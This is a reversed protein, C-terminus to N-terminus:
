FWRVLKLLEKVNDEKMDWCEIHIHAEPILLKHEHVEIVECGIDSIQKEVEEAVSADTVIDGEAICKEDCKLTISSGHFKRKRPMDIVYSESQAHYWFTANPEEEAVIERFLRQVDVKEEM